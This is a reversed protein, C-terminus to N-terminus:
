PTEDFRLDVVVPYHDSAVAALTSDVVHTSTVKEALDPTAFAHDIFSRYIRPKLECHYTAADPVLSLPRTVCVLSKNDAEELMCTIADMGAEREHRDMGFDDNFDGLLIVPTGDSALEHCIDRTRRLERIRWETVAESNGYKSKVHTCGVWFEAGGPTRLKVFGPGRSFLLNREGLGARDKMGAIRPDNVSDVENRFDERIELIEFGPKAMVGLWQGDVNTPFVHVYEYLGNLRQENFRRLVDERCCEQIVLIDADLEPKLMVQAIEYLDEDDRFLETDNRSREPMLEQDFLRMFHEVNYTAIRVDEGAALSPAIGWVILVLATLVLVSRKM